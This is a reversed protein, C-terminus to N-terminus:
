LGLPPRLFAKLPFTHHVKQSCSFRHSIICACVAHRHRFLHKSCSSEICLLTYLTYCASHIQNLSAEQKRLSHQTHSQTYITIRVKIIPIFQPPPCPDFASHWTTTATNPLLYVKNAILASGSPFGAEIVIWLKSGLGDLSGLRVSSIQLCWM